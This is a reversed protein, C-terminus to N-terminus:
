ISGISKLTARSDKMPLMLQEPDLPSAEFGFKKYFAVTASRLVQDNFGDTDSDFWFGSEKFTV